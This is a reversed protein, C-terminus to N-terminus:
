PCDEIDIIQEDDTRCIQDVIIQAKAQRLDGTYNDIYVDTVVWLCTKQCIDCNPYGGTFVIGSYLTIEKDKAETVYYCIGGM